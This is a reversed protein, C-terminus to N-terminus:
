RTRCVGIIKNSMTIFFKPSIGKQVWLENKRESAIKRTVMVM